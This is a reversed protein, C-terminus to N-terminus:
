IKYRGYEWEGKLLEELFKRGINFDLAYM